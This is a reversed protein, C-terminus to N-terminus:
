ERYDDYIEIRMSYEPLDEHWIVLGHGVGKEITLIDELTEIEIICSLCFGYSAERVLCHRPFKDLVDRYKELMDDYSYAVSTILAKM